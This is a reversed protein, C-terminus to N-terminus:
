SQVTSVEGYDIFVEFEVGSKLKQNLNNLAATYEEASYDDSFEIGFLYHLAGELDHYAFINQPLKKRDVTENVYSCLNEKAIDHLDGTIEDTIDLMHEESFFNGFTWEEAKGSHIYDKLVM